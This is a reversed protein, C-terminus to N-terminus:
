ALLTGATREPTPFGASRGSMVLSGRCDAIASLPVRENLLAATRCVRYCSEHAILLFGNCGRSTPFCQCGTSCEFHCTGRSGIHSATGYLKILPQFPSTLASAGASRGYPYTSIAVGTVQPRQRCRIPFHM